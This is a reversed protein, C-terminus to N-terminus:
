PNFRPAKSSSYYPNASNLKYLGVVSGLLYAYVAGGVFTCVVSYLREVNTEPVIDGYGLRLPAL